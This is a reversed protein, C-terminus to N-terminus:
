RISFWEPESRAVEFPGFDGEVAVRYKGTVGAPVRWWCWSYTGESGANFVGAGLAKGAEDLVRFRPPQPVGGRKPAANYNEGAQGVLALAFHIMGNPQLGSPQVKVFLPPGARLSLVQGARTDFKALRGWSSVGHLSWPTGAADTRNLTADTAAHWGAPIQWKGGSGSLRRFGYEGVLALGLDACGTDLMGFEPEAKTLAISSGDPAVQVRYYANGVHLTPLLDFTESASAGPSELRGDQNLDIALYTEGQAADPSGDGRLVNDYRGSLSHDVLAVRYAQGDLNVEGAMYGAPAVAIEKDNKELSSLFRVRAVRGAQGDV